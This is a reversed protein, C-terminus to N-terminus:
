DCRNCEIIKLNLSNLENGYDHMKQRLAFIEEDTKKEFHGLADLEQRFFLLDKQILAVTKDLSVLTKVSEDIRNVLQKLFFGIVIMSISLITAGSSFAIAANSM